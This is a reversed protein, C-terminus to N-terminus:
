GARCCHWGRPVPKWGTRVFSWSRECALGSPGESIRGEQGSHFGRRGVIGEGAPAGDLGVGTEAAIVHGIDGAKAGEAPLLRLRLDLGPKMKDSRLAVNGMKGVAELGGRAEKGEPLKKM